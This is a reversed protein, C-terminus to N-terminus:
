HGVASGLLSMPELDCHSKAMKGGSRLFQKAQISQISVQEGFACLGSLNRRLDACKQMVRARLM